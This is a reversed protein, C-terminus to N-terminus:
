PSLAKFAATLVTICIGFLLGVCPGFSVGVNPRRGLESRHLQWLGWLVSVTVATLGVMFALTSFVATGNTLEVSM